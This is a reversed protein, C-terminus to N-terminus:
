LPYTRIMRIQATPISIHYTEKEFPDAKFELHYWSADYWDRIQVGNVEAASDGVLFVQVQTLKTKSM